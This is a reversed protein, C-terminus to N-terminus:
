IEFSSKEPLIYELASIIKKQCLNFDIDYGDNITLIKLKQEMIDAVIDDIGRDSIEHYKYFDYINIPHTNGECFQWYRFIYQNIGTISRFKDNAVQILKAEELSWVKDLTFKLYPTPAHQDLFGTFNKWPLLCLTKFLYKKYKLNIWNFPYSSIVHKKKFNNNIIEVVNMRIPSVSSPTLANLIPMDCPLGKKFFINSNIPSILFMDDNFYIFKESLGKIRNIFLEIPHSNFLPLYENPIYDEHKVINLKPNDLDLWDPLHGFTIFHIKRVWPAFREVGRFWYKLFKWDRYREFRADSLLSSPNYKKFESQWKPDTGDVWPIVIDIDYLM